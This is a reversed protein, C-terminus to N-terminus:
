FSCERNLYVRKVDLSKRGFNILLGTEIGSAKLYSKTQAWHDPCLDKVAKMEVIARGAVIIDPRFTGCRFGEYFVELEKQSEFPIKRLMLERVLAQHYINEIFGPGLQRHVKQCAGIIQYTIEEIASKAIVEADLVSKDDSQFGEDM